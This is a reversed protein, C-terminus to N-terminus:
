RTMREGSSDEAGNGGSLLSDRLKALEGASRSLAGAAGSLMLDTRHCAQQYIASAQKEADERIEQAYAQARRTIESEEVLRQAQQQAQEVIQQATNVGVDGMVLVEELDDFFTDDIEVKGYLMNDIAASMNERTKKLGKNIKQFLGM